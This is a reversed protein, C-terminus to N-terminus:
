IHPHAIVTYIGSPRRRRRRRRFCLVLLLLIMSAVGGLIVLIFLILWDLTPFFPPYPLITVTGDVFTNDAIRTEDDVRDAVATIVYKLPFVGSTNWKFVVLAETSPALNQVLKRDILVRGYYVRVYLSEDYRGNNRVTVNITVIQGAKVVTPSPAVNTVSVDHDSPPPKESVVEVFGDLFTNDSPTLDGALPASASIQYGGKSVSSTNWIFAITKQTLPALRIVQSTAIWTSNYYVSVDFTESQNGKNLVTVGINVIEGSLVLNSSLAVSTIAIDIGGDSITFTTYIAPSYLRGGQDPPATFPAASVNALGTEASPPVQSTAKVNSNGPQFARSEMQIYIIPHQDSDKVEVRIIASKETRATNQVTLNFVIPDQRTFISQPSLETNLTGIEIISLIWGVRFTLTDVVVLEAIEVTALAIWQGFIAKEPIQSPWPLRFSFEAIGNEDTTGSGVVTINQFQNMPGNIQFAVLKGAVPADNYTALAFFVVLEQPEYADASQNAGKGDFPAQDTYLDIAVGTQATVSVLQTCPFLSFILFIALILGLFVTCHVKETRRWM